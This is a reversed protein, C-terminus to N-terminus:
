KMLERVKAAIAMGLKKEADASIHLGDIGDTSIATNADFFAAGGLQAVGEYLKPLQKSKELGGKFMEGFVPGTEIVPGLAAPCILLM